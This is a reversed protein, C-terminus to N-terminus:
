NGHEKVQEKDEDKKVGAGGKRHAQLAERVLVSPYSGRCHQYLDSQLRM